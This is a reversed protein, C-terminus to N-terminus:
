TKNLMESIKKLTNPDTKQILDVLKKQDNTLDEDVGKLAEPKVEL